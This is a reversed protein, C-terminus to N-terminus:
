GELEMGTEQRLAAILGPCRPEVKETLFAQVYPAVWDESGHEPTMGAELADMYDSSMMYHGSLCFSYALHLIIIDLTDAGLQEIWEARSKLHVRGDNLLLHDLFNHHTQDNCRDRVATYHPVSLLPRVANLEQAADVYKGIEGTRPLARAGTIWRDIREVLPKGPQANRQLYLNIYTGILAADYLKRALAYADNINGLTVLAAMGRLTSAMSGMLYTDLSLVSRTGIPVFSMVGFSLGDYFEAYEGLKAVMTEAAENVSM